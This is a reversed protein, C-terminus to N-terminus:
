LVSNVMLSKCSKSPVSLKVGKRFNNRKPVVSKYVVEKWVEFVKGIRTRFIM